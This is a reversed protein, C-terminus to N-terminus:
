GEPHYQEVFRKLEEGWQVYETKGCNDCRFTPGGIDEGTEQSKGDWLGGKVFTHTCESAQTQNM